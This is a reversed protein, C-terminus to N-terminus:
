RGTPPPPPHVAGPGGLWGGVDLFNDEPSFYFESSAWIQFSMTALQTKADSGGVGSPPQSWASAAYFFSCLCNCTSLTDLLSLAVFSSSSLLFAGFSNAM